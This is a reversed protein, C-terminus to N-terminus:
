KRTSNLHSAFQSQPQAALPVQLNVALLFHATPDKKLRARRFTAAVRNDEGTLVHHILAL